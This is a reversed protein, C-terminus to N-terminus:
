MSNAHGWGFDMGGHYHHSSAKLRIAELMPKGERDLTQLTGTANAAHQSKTHKFPHTELRDKMHILMVAEDRHPNPRLMPHVQRERLEHGRIFRHEQPVMRIPIVDASEATHMTAGALGLRLIGNLFKENIPGDRLIRERLCKRSNPFFM